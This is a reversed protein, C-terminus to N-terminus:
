ERFQKLAALADEAQSTPNAQLDRWVVVGDAILFAQRKAFKGRHSVGFADVLSGTTDALLVFPLGYKEKFAKQASVEDMSVGLISIGSERLMVYSDRLNCAQKTCGPTDAKPYFYVLVVGADYVAGLDLFAGSDTTVTIRPANAGVEIPINMKGSAEVTAATRESEGACLAGLVHLVVLTFLYNKARIKVLRLATLCIALVPRLISNIPLNSNLPRSCPVWEFYPVHPIEIEAM